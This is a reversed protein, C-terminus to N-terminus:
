KAVELTHWDQYVEELYRLNKKVSEVKEIENRARMDELSGYRSRMKMDVEAIGELDGAMIFSRMLAIYIVIDPPPLGSASGKKAVVSTQEGDEEQITGARCPHATELHDLVKLAKVREGVLAYGRALETFHYVTPRLGLRLMDRIIQSPSLDSSRLTPRKLGPSLQALFPTYAEASILPHELSVLTSSSTDSEVNVGPFLRYPLDLSSDITEAEAHLQKSADHYAQAFANLKKYLAVVRAKDGSNLLVLSQWVLSTQESSPYLKTKPLIGKAPNGKFFLHLLKPDRQDVESRMIHIIEEIPVGFCWFTASFLDIVDEYRGSRWLYVMEMFFWMKSPVYTSLHARRRLLRLLNPRSFAVTEQTGFPTTLVVDSSSLASIVQLFVVQKPLRRREGPRGKNFPLGAKARRIANALDTTTTLERTIVSSVEQDLPPSSEMSVAVDGYSAEDYMRQVTSIFGNVKTLKRSSVTAKEVLVSRRHKLHTLLFGYTHQSLPLDQNMTAVLDVAFELHGIVALSRIACERISKKSLMARMEPPVHQNVYDGDVKTERHYAENLKEYKELFEKAIEAPNVRLITPLLLPSLISAYGKSSLVLAIPMLLYGHHHLITHITDYFPISLNSPQMHLPPVHSFFLLFSDRRIKRDERHLKLFIRAGREFVPHPPIPYNVSELESLITKAEDFNDSAICQHLRSIADARDGQVLHHPYEVSYQEDEFEFVDSAEPSTLSPLTKPLLEFKVNRVMDSDGYEKILPLLHEKAFGAYGKSALM